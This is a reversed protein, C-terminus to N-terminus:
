RYTELKVNYGMEKIVRQSEQGLDYRVVPDDSGHGMFIPTDKNPNAEAIHDKISKSLLLWSSLGIIGALKVPSTLGTFISMAGGQSFGGLIIRDSPIGASIEEQVLSNFYDRSALIGTADEAVPRRRMDEVSGGLSAIDFWGPM